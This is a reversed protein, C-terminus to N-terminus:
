KAPDPDTNFFFTPDPDADFLHRDAVSGVAHECLRGIQVASSLLSSSQFVIEIRHIKSLKFLLM